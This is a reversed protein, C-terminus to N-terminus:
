IHYGNAPLYRKREDSCYAQNGGGGFDSPKIVYGSWILQGQGEQRHVGCVSGLLWLLATKKTKNQTTNNIVIPALHFFFSYIKLGIQHRVFYM